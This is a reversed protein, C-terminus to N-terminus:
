RELRAVEDGDLVYRFLAPEDWDATRRVTILHYPSTPILEEGIAGTSAYIVVEDGQRVLRDIGFEAVNKAQWGRFVLVAFHTEWDLGGMLRIAESNVFRSAGTLDDSGTLILLGPERRPFFRSPVDPARDREVTEFALEGSAALTPPRDLLALGARLGATLAGALALLAVAM